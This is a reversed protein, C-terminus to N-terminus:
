VDEEESGEKFVEIDGEEVDGEFKTLLMTSWGADLGKKTETDKAEPDRYSLRQGARTDADIGMVQFSKGGMRFGFREDTTWERDGGKVKASFTTKKGSQRLDFLAEYADLEEIQAVPAPEPEPAPTLPPRTPTPQSLTQKLARRAEEAEATTTRRPTKPSVAELEEELAQTQEELIRQAKKIPSQASRTRAIIEEATATTM